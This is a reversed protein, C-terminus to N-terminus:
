HSLRVKPQQRRSSETVHEVGRSASDHQPPIEFHVNMNLRINETGCFVRTMKVLSGRPAVVFELHDRSRSSM